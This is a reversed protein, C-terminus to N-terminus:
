QPGYNVWSGMDNAIQDVYSFVYTGRGTRLWVIGSFAASTQNVWQFVPSGSNGGDAFADVENQCLITFNAFQYDVCTHSM